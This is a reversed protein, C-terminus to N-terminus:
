LGKPGRNRTGVGVGVVGRTGQPINAVRGRSFPTSVEYMQPQVPRNV